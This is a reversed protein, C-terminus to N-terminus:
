SSLATIDLESVSVVRSLGTILSPSLSFLFPQGRCYWPLTHLRPSLCTGPPLIAACCSHRSKYARCALLVSCSTWWWTVDTLLESALRELAHRPGPVAAPLRAGTALRACSLLQDDRGRDSHVTGPTCSRLQPDRPHHHLFIARPETSSAAAPACGAGTTCCPAYHTHGASGLVQCSRGNEVRM